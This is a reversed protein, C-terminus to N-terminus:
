TEDPVKDTGVNRWKEIDCPFPGWTHVWFDKVLNATMLASQIISALMEAHDPHTGEFREHLVILHAAARNLNNYAHAAQRKLLERKGKPM